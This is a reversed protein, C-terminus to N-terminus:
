LIGVMLACKKKSKKWSIVDCISIKVPRRDQLKDFIGRVPPTHKYLSIWLFDFWFLLLKVVTRTRIKIFLVKYLIFTSTSSFSSQHDRSLIELDSLIDIWQTPAATFCIWYVSSVLQLEKPIKLVYNFNVSVLFKNWCFELITFYNLM